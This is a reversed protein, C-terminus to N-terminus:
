TRTPAHTSPTCIKVFRPLRLSTNPFLVPPFPHTQSRHTFDSNTSVDFRLVVRTGGRPYLIAPTYPLAPSQTSPNPSTIVRYHHQYLVRDVSLIHHLDLEQRPRQYKPMAISITVTSTSKCAAQPRTSAEISRAPMYATPYTSIPQYLYNTPPVLEAGLRLSTCSLLPALTSSVTPQVSSRLSCFGVIRVRGWKHRQACFSM